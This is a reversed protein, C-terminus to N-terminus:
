SERWTADAEASWASTWTGDGRSGFRASSGKPRSDQLFRVPVSSRWSGRDLQCVGTVPFSWTYIRRVSSDAKGENKDAKDTSGLGVAQQRLPTDVALESHSFWDSGQRGVAVVQCSSHM